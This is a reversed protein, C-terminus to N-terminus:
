IIELITGMKTVSVILVICIGLPYKKFSRLGTSGFNSIDKLIVFLTKVSIVSKEM